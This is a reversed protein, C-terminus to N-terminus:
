FAGAGGGVFTSSDGCADTVALPVTVLQGQNLRRLTFVFPQTGDAPTVAFGGASGTRSGADIVANVARGFRVERLVNVPQLVTSPVTVMVRLVAPGTKVIDLRVPPRSGARGALARGIPAMRQGRLAVWKPALTAFLGM